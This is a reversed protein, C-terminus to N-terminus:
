IDCLAYSCDIIFGRELSQVALKISGDSEGAADMIYLQVHMSKSNFYTSTGVLHPSTNTYYGPALQIRSFSSYYQIM